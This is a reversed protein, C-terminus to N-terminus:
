ALDDPMQSSPLWDLDGPPAMDQLETFPPRDAGGIISNDLYTSRTMEWAVLDGVQLAIVKKPMEIFSAGLLTHGYRDLTQMARFLDAAKGVYKDKRAVFVCVRQSRVAAELAVNQFVRQLCAYYAKDLLSERVAVSLKRWGAVPMSRGIPILDHERMLSIMCHTVEAKRSDDGTWCAFRRRSAHMDTMHLERIGFAQLVLAWDKTFATWAAKDGIAGEVSVAHIDEDGSDELYAELM